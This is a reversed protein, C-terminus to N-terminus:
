RERVVEQCEVIAHSPKLPVCAISHESEWCWLWNHEDNAGIISVITNQVVIKFSKPRKCVTQAMMSQEVSVQVLVRAPCM